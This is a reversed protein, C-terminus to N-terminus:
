LTNGRDAFGDRYGQRYGVKYDEDSVEFGEFGLEVDTASEVIAQERAEWGATFGKAAFLLQRLTQADGPGDPAILAGVELLESPELGDPIPADLPDLEANKVNEADFSGLLYMMAGELSVTPEGGALMELVIPGNLEALYEPDWDTLPRREDTFHNIERETEHKPGLISFRDDSCYAAHKYRTDSSRSIVLSGLAEVVPLVNAFHPVEPRRGVVQEPSAKDLVDVYAEYIVQAMEETGYAVHPATQVLQKAVEVVLNIRGAPVAEYM